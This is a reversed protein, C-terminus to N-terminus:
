PGQPIIQPYSYQEQQKEITREFPLSDNVYSKAPAAIRGRIIFRFAHLRTQVCQKGIIWTLPNSILSSIRKDESMEIELEHKSHM